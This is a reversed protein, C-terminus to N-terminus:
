QHMFHTKRSRAEAECRRCTGTGNPVFLLSKPRVSLYLKEGFRELGSHSTPNGWVLNQYTLAESRCVLRQTVTFLSLALYDACHWLSLPNSLGMKSTCM